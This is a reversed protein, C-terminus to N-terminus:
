RLPVDRPKSLVSSETGWVSPKSFTAFFIIEEWNPFNVCDTYATKSCLYLGTVRPSRCVRPLQLTFVKRDQQLASVAPVQIKLDNQQTVAYTVRAVIGIQLM